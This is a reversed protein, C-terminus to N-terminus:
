KDPIKGIQGKGRERRGVAGRLFLGSLTPSVIRVKGSFLHSFGQNTPDRLLQWHVDNKEQSDKTDLMSLWLPLSKTEFPRLFPEECLTKTWLTAFHSGECGM